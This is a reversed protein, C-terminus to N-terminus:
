KYWGNKVIKSLSCPGEYYNDKFDQEKLLCNVIKLFREVAVDANWLDSITHFANIKIIQMQLSTMSNLEELVKVIQKVNGKKFIFGNVKNKILVPASGVSHSVCPICFSNMAENVVAGWGEYFNSGLFFVDSNLMTKRVEENSTFPLVTVYHQMKHRVIYKHISSNSEGDGVLKLDIKENANKISNIAKLIDKIRKLKLFRGAYLIRLKSGKSENVKILKQYDIFETFYGWSFCKESPFGCRALDFSTFGSACLIYLNKDKYNLYGNRIKNRTRPILYRWFGRKFIREIYRFSLKNLKMRLSLYEDSDSGFIVVDYEIAIQKAKIKNEYEKIVFPYMNNMDKYGMIVRDNPTKKLAVFKFEINKNSLFAKCLPLQHHNLFNSFFAIKM